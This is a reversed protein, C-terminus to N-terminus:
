ESREKAKFEGDSNLRQIVDTQVGCLGMANFFSYTDYVTVTTGDKMAFTVIYQDIDHFKQEIWNILGTRSEPYIRQVTAKM